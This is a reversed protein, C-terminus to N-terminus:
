KVLALRAVTRAGAMELVVHYVGAAVPAGAADRGEWRERYRGADREGGALTRVLRGALDYVRLRFPGRRELTFTVTVAPNAPNPWLQLGAAAGPTEAVASVGGNPAGPTPEPFFVWSSAGDHFRGESQDAVQPGFEHADLQEYGGALPRFLGLEEGGASLKFSAHLPGDGPDEDCWVLLHGGGPIVTGAPLAWQGPAALNDTLTLGGVDVPESEANYLELWDEHAGTEDTIGNVNSALFENLMIWPAAEPVHATWPHTRSTGDALVHTLRYWAAGPLPTPDTAAYSTPVTVTGAAPIDDLIRVFPGDATAARTIEWHDTATEQETRWALAVTGTAPTASWETLEVPLMRAALFAACQGDVVLDRQGILWRLALHRDGFDHSPPWSWRAVHGAAESMQAAAIADLRAELAPRALPGARLDEWRERIRRRLVPNGAARDFLAFMHEIGEGWLVYYDQPRNALFEAETDSAFFTFFDHHRDAFRLLLDEDWMVFEWVGGAPRLLALNRSGGNDAAGLMINILLWDLWSDVDLNAAILDCLAHDEPDQSAAVSALFAFWDDASGAEAEGDKVLDFDGPVGLTVEVWEDDLRERLHYLGWYEHNLYGAVPAWRSVRHGCAAFVGNALPDNFYPDPADAARLLLRAHVTETGDFFTGVIAEPEGHHDFYMRLGRQPNARSSEGHIRLGITRAHVLEDDADTYLFEAEREWLDGRQEFNPPFNDGWCYIGTLPDWLAAPECALDVLPLEHLAPDPPLPVPRVTVAHEVGDGDIFVYDRPAVEAWGCFCVFTYDDLRRLGPQEFPLDLTATGVFRFELGGELYGPPPYDPGPWVQRFGRIVTLEGGAADTVASTVVAALAAFLLAHRTAIMVFDGRNHVGPPNYCM